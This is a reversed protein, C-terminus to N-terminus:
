GSRTAEELGSAANILAVHTFGQPFNGLHRREVPDFEEAYLGVDNAFGLLREFLARAEDVRGMEAYCDVLWFSCMLFVGEGPPLGDDVKSTRYRRILGKPIGGGRRAADLEQEIRAVTAHMRPDDPRIVKRLQLQLLSADVQDSGYAQRFSGTAPDVGKTTIEQMIAAAAADWAHTNGQLGTKHAM